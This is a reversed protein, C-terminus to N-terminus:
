AVWKPKRKQYFKPEGSGGENRDRRNAQGQRGGNSNYSGRTDRSFGAEGEPKKFGRKKNPSNYSPSYGDRPKGGSAGFSSRGQQGHQSNGQSNNGYGSRSNRRSNNSNNGNAHRGGSRRPSDFGSSENGKVANPDILRCISRWKSLDAPTILNIAEGEAGARATRGIRHIYDEPCQPLDYNVVCEVSPVDLGRAAIDTAVLIRSKLKRFNQIARDRCKQRLDGHIADANHGSECLREALRDAGAKLKVFIIVSGEVQDLKKLLIGYKESESTRVAEQKIKEAPKNTGAISVRVPNNLYSEAIKMVSQPMTASFMLTQREKPLHKAIQQLQISFGMDLMRDTEDLVLFGANDLILSGRDLHDNIRGPTGVILRPRNKLQRFQLYMSEGGILLATNVRSQKGGLIQKLTAYVQSALERTPTLVLVTSHFSPNDLIHAVAPIGYAATKGTGTQASGMIDRGELALPITQAQIPTPTKFEMAKLSSLLVESLGFEEFSQINQVANPMNDSM